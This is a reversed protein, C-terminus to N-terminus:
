IWYIDCDSLNERPVTKGRLQVQLLMTSFCCQAHQLSAVQIFQARGATQMEEAKVASPLRSHM